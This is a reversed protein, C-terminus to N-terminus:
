EKNGKDLRNEVRKLTRCIEKVLKSFPDLVEHKSSLFIAKM